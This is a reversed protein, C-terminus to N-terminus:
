VTCKVEIFIINFEPAPLHREDVQDKIINNRGVFGAREM